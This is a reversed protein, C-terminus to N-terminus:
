IPFVRRLIADALLDSASNGSPTKKTASAGSSWGDRIGEAARCASPYISFFLRDGSSLRTSPMAFLRNNSTSSLQSCKISSTARSAEERREAQERKFI